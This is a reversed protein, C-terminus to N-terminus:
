RQEKRWLTAWLLKIACVYYARRSEQEALAIRLCRVEAKARRLSNMDSTM